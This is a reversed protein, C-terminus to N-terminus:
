GAPVVETSGQMWPHIACLFYIRSPGASVDVTVAQEFSRGVKNGSFWSDGKQKVSGGLTDWGDLGAKAPNKKVPGNGKVGHWVAIAKCIHNKTFCLKRAKPTKPLSSKTVLSFTHPGVKRPDSQNLVRLSEGAVVTKPAVFRLGKKDAKMYVTAASALSAFGCVVVLAACTLAILKVLDGRLHTSKV